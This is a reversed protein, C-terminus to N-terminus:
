YAGPAGLELWLQFAKTILGVIIQAATLVVFTELIIAGALIVSLRYMLNNFPIEPLTSKVPVTSVAKRSPQKNSPARDTNVGIGGM